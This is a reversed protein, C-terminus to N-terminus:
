KKVLSKFSEISFIGETPSLLWGTFNKTSYAELTDPVFLPLMPALEKMQKQLAFFANKLGDDSFTLWIQDLLADLQAINVGGYNFGSVVGNQIVGRSTHLYYYLMEPHYGLEYGTLNLDFDAKKLNAVITEHAQANIEVKVGIRSLYLKIYEAMEMYEKTNYTLIEFTEGKYGSQALFQRAQNEDFAVLGLEPNYVTKSFSPVIGFSAKQAYGLFIKQIMEDYNIAYQVAKRFAVESLVPKRHNFLMCYVSKGATVAVSLDPYKKPNQIIQQTLSTDLNWSVYDYDGRVLGLFGMTEDQVLHFVIGDFNQPADPHSQFADLTVSQPTQEKFRLPGSGVPNDLNPFEMPKDVKQWYKQPIVPIAMPVFSLVSSNLVRFNLKVTKDDIKEAGTFYALIPGMPLRKQVTNNFSFAVDDATVPSGDHFFRERIKFIINKGPLDIEWSEAVDGLITGGTTGMLTEYLYGILMREAPSNIFFPNLSRVDGLVAVQLYASFMFVSLTVFLLFFLM